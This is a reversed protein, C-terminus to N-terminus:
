EKVDPALGDLADADGDLEDMFNGVEVTVLMPVVVSHM